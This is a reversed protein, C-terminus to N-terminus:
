KIARARVGFSATIDAQAADLADIVGKIQLVMQKLKKLADWDFFEMRAGATLQRVAMVFATSMSAHGYQECTKPLTVALGTYLASRETWTLPEGGDRAQEAKIIMKLVGSWFEANTVDEGLQDPQSMSMARKTKQSKSSM